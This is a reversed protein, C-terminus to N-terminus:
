QTRDSEDANAREADERMERIGKYGFWATAVALVAFGVRNFTLHDEMPAIFGDWLFWLSLGLLVAPLFLPHDFPTEVPEDELEEAEIEENPNREPDDEVQSMAPLM